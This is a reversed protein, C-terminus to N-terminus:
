RISITINSLSSGHIYYGSVVSRNGGEINILGGCFSVLGNLSLEGGRIRIGIVGGGVAEDAIIDRAQGDIGIAGPAKTWIVGGVLTESITFNLADGNVVADGIGVTPTILAGKVDM